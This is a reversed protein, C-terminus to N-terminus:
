NEFKLTFICLTSVNMKAFEGYLVLPQLGLTPNCGNTYFKFPVKGMRSTGKM